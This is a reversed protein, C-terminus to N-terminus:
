YRKEATVGIGDVVKELAEGVEWTGKIGEKQWGVCEGEGVM